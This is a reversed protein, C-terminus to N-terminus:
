KIPRIYLCKVDLVTHKDGHCLQLGITGENFGAVHITDITKVGNLWAQIHHDKAIVYYHNWDNEKVLKAALEKPYQQVMGARREEWLCGWYGPGMDIQYGPANDADTAHLRICVGSNAENGTMRVLAQLEFDKYVTKTYAYNHFKGGMYDGHLIGDGLKWYEKSANWDELSSILNTWNKGVPKDNKLRGQSPLTIKFLSDNLGTEYSSHQSSSCGNAIIAAIVIFANLVSRSFFNKPPKVNQKL